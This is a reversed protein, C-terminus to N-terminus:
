TKRLDRIGSLIADFLIEVEDPELCSFAIRMNNEGLAILGIGYHELLHLRLTEASVDKLRICMFYGSNFPYVDFAGRYDPKKLISRVKDVRSKLVEFKERKHADYREDSMSKLVLTQSLHSANSITARICGATKKELAEYVRDDDSHVGYTVFGIRFGWVYDEKTAGDLKAVVLRPDAGALLGFLSEKFTEDDFFLGFYADDCGVVVNAGQRAADILIGAMQEAEKRTPSYGTPNHPFNLITVIKAKLRAQERIVKEFAEMNFRTLRDDYAPYHILRAKNKVAFTLAYNGWFMDPLIIVDDADVWLDSFLSLAHTIGSTVVPLSTKSRGLSPNKRLIESKWRRRLEPIGFSPAYPLYAEPDIGQIYRTVSPLGLVHKKERAIGITANIKHAKQKAEASQTLIGKPFFLAKGMDSLMEFVYPNSQKIIHNLELAIPNMCGNEFILPM